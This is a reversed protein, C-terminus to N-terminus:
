HHAPPQLLFPVIGILRFILMVIFIIFSAGIVLEPNYNFQNAYILLVSERVGLGQFSIPLTLLTTMAPLFIFLVLNFDIGFTFLWMSYLIFAVAQSLLCLSSHLIMERNSLDQLNKLSRLYRNNGFITLKLFKERSLIVITVCFYYLLFSGLLHEVSFEEWILYFIILSIFLLIYWLFSFIKDLLSLALAKKKDNFSFMKYTESGVAGLNFLGMFDSAWYIKYLSSFSENSIKNIFIKWKLTMLFLLFFLLLLSLFLYFIDLSLLSNLVETLELSKLVFFLILFSFIFRLIFKLKPSKLGFKLKELNKLKM